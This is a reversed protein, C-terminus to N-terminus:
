VCPFITSMEIIILGVELLGGMTYHAAPEKIAIRMPCAIPTTKRTHLADSRSKEGLHNSREKVKKKKNTTDVKPPPAPRVRTLRM